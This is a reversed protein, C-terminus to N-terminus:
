SEKSSTGSDRKWFLGELFSCLLIKASESKQIALFDNRNSETSFNVCTPKPNLNSRCEALGSLFINIDPKPLEDKNPYEFLLKSNSFQSKLIRLDRNKSLHEAITIWFLMLFMCFLVKSSGTTENRLFRNSTIRFVLWCIDIQFHNEM